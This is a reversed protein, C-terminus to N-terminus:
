KSVCVCVCACVCVCVCMWSYLCVGEWVQEKYEVIFNWVQRKLFSIPIHTYTHTCPHTQASGGRLIKFSNKLFLYKSVSWQAEIKIQFMDNKNKGM